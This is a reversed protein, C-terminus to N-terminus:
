HWWVVWIEHGMQISFVGRLARFVPEAQLARISGRPIDGQCVIGWAELTDNVIYPVRRAIQRDIRNQTFYVFPVELLDNTEWVYM